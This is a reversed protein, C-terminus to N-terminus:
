KEQKPTDMSIGALKGLDASKSSRFYNSILILKFQPIHACLLFEIDNPTLMNIYEKM